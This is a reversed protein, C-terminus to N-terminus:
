AKAAHWCLIAVVIWTTQGTRQSHRFQVMPMIASMVLELPNEFSQSIVAHNENEMHFTEQSSLALNGPKSTQVVLVRVHTWLGEKSEM